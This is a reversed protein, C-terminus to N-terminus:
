FKYRMGLSIIDMKLNTPYIKGSHPGTNYFYIYELYLNIYKNLNHEFGCLAQFGIKTGKEIITGTELKSKAEAYTVNMGGGLYVFNNKFCPMFKFNLLLSDM